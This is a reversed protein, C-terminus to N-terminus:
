DMMLVPMSCRQHIKCAPIIKNIYLDGQDSTNHDPDDFNQSNPIFKAIMQNQCILEESLQFIFFSSDSLIFIQIMETKKEWTMLHDDNSHFHPEIQVSLVGNMIFGDNV